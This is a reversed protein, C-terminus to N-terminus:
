RIISNFSRAEDQFSEILQEEAFGGSSMPITAKEGIRCVLKGFTLSAIEKKGIEFKYRGPAGVTYTATSNDKFTATVTGVTGAATRNHFNLVNQASALQAGLAFLVVLLLNKM